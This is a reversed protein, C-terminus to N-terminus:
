STGEEGPVLEVQLSKLETLAGDKRFYQEAVKARQRQLMVIQQDIAKVQRELADREQTIQKTREDLNM